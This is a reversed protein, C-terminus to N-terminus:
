SADLVTINHSQFFDIIAAQEDANVMATISDDQQNCVNVILQDNITCVLAQAARLRSAFHDGRLAVVGNVVEFCVDGYPGLVNLVNNV